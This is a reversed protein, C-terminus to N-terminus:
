GLSAAQLLPIEEVANEIPRRHVLFPSKGNATIGTPQIISGAQQDAKDAGVVRGPMQYLWGPVESRSADLRALAARALSQLAAGDHGVTVVSQTDTAGAMPLMYAIANLLDPVRVPKTMFSYVLQEPLTSQTDSISFHGSLFLVKCEPLAATIRVAAEIGNMAGMAIDSLLLDPPFESAKKIADEGSFATDVQYGEERLIECLTIAIIEEDDVVLIRPKATEDNKM